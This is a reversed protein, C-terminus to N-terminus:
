DKTQVDDGGERITLYEILRLRWGTYDGLGLVRILDVIELARYAHSRAGENEGAGRCRLEERKHYNHRTVLEVALRKEDIM